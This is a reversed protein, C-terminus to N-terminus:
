LPVPGDLSALLDIASPNLRAKVRRATADIEPRLGEGPTWSGALVIALLLFAIAYGAAEYLQSPHSPVSAALSGWPGPGAYAVAWGVDAPQGQGSGGLMLAAKGLALGLLLPLAAAHAWRGAGGELLAAVALGGLTGGAVALSLEFSGSTPDAWTYPADRFYDAYLLLYGVRGAVVAGATAGLAVFLLDDRRLHVNDAAAGSGAVSGAAAAVPTRGAVLAAAVLAVLIAAAIGLTELRVGFQGVAVVPDFSLTIVAPVPAPV